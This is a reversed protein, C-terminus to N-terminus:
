PKQGASKRAEWMQRTFEYILVDIMEGTRASKKAGVLRQALRWGRSENFAIAIENYALVNSVVAEAKFGDFYIEYAMQEMEHLLGMSRFEPEGILVSPRVQRRDPSFEAISIGILRGSKRELVVALIRSHQDFSRVYDRVEDLSFDRPKANLMMAAIPDNLWGAWQESVDELRATRVIFNDSEMAIDFRGSQPDTKVTYPM